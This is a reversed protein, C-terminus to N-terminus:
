PFDKKTVEIWHCFFDNLVQSM